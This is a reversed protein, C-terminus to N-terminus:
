WWLRSGWTVVSGNDLIAAFASPSAQIQQVNRLKVQVALSDGGFGPAGWTVVSGNDLIAAFARSSAQIQEVNRLQEQAASSDGGFDQSGWTVVSRNDLIAAFADYIGGTKTAQVQEINSLQGQIASSNGGKSSSGWAVIRHGGCCWAAFAGSTSAVKPQQVVATLHEGEQIGASQLSEMHKTLARNQATVLKLFKRGFSEQALVQLDQVTSLQPLLLTKSCGSPLSVNVRLM